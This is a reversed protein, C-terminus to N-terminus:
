KRGSEGDEGRGKGRGERGRGSGERKLAMVSVKEGKRRGM